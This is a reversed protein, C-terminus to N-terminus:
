THRFVSSPKLQKVEDLKLSSTNFCTLHKLPKQPTAKSVINGLAQPFQKKLRGLRFNLTNALHSKSALHSRSITEFRIKPSEKKQECSSQLIFLYTRVNSKKTSNWQSPQFEVSRKKFYWLRRLTKIMTILWAVSEIHLYPWLLSTLIQDYHHHTLFIM